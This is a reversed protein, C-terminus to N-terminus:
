PHYGADPLLYYMVLALPIDRHCPCLRFFADSNEYFVSKQLAAIIIFFLPNQQNINTGAGKATM